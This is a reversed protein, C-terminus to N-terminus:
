PKAADAVRQRLQEARLRTLNAKSALANISSERGDTLYSASEADRFTIWARQGKRLESVQAPSLTKILAQYHQNLQKDQRALEQKGCDLMAPMVGNAADGTNMCREYADPQAALCPLSAACLLLPLLFLHTPKM